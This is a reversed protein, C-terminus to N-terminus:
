FSFRAGLTLRRNNATSGGPGYAGTLGTSQGFRSSELVNIPTSPDVNNLLNRAEAWVTVNYKHGSSPKGFVGSTAAPISGPQSPDSEGFGWTRGVRMNISFFAPGTGYNRPIVPTNPGPHLLFNGYATCAYNNTDACNANPAFAPRDNFISDGNSDEGTVINFPIGSRVNVFPSFRLNWRTVLSGGLVVRHRVDTAARGYDAAINYPNSPFSGSGDSTSRAYNLAYYGFFSFSTNLQTNVNVTMQNQKFIGVSEYAYINDSIGYPRIGSGAAGTYTGPLPANINDSILQHVGHSNNYNLALKTRARLQREVGIAGQMIYPSRIDRVLERITPSSAMGLSDVPPIGAASTAYFLPNAVIYQLQNTGNLQLAALLPGDGIVSYFMGWGGRIVTKPQSNPGAGPSWAFGFRPAVDRWDRTNTQKQYRLGLNVTLSSSVRWDDQIYPSADFLSLHTRPNGANITFQSPMGGLLQITQPPYGLRQFLLTRRYQELASISTCDSPAAAGQPLNLCDNPNGVPDNSSDLVPALEGSFTFTGGFNQTSLTTEQAERIRFGAKLSHTAGLSFTTFNTVEFHTEADVGRGVQSSGGNFESLVSIAPVTNDGLSKNVSKLYRLRTETVIKGEIISTESISASNEDYRTYYAQSALNLFQAGGIGANQVPARLYNYRLSLTNNANLQYDIRPSFEARFNPVEFSQQYSVPNLNSDLVTANVVANDEINRREFDFFFSANKNLPGSVNGDFQRSYFDPKYPVFPNRSNFDAESDGYSAAAHFQDSGPRTLIEIRGYGLQQYEASFPNQNVRIERISEKPPLRGGTFGDIILDPGDPGVAPGALAQLDAQLDDPDNPLADMSSGSVSVQTANETADISVAAITSEVTVEQRSAEVTMGFPVDLTQGAVLSVSKQQPTFGSATASVIYPGPPIGSFAFTGDAGTSISKSVSAGSISATAGPIQAGSSDTVQGRVAAM